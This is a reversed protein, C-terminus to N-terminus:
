EKCQIKVIGGDENRTAGCKMKMFAYWNFNKDARQAIQSAIPQPEAYSVCSKCFAICSRISAEKPLVKDSIRLFKFGMFTDIQGTVLARIANYDASKVETTRLLDDIQSQTLVFILQEGPAEIDVDAKGILSRAQILKELNLGTSGSGGVTDAITQSGKFAIKTNGDKGGWADGLLGDIIIQDCKRGLAYAGAKTIPGTPDILINLDDMWDVMDGWAYEYARLARRDFKTPIIPSDQYKSTVREVETPHVREVFKLEGKMPEHAVFASLKSGQQQVMQYCNAAYQNVYVEALEAM